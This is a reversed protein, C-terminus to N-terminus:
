RAAALDQAAYACHPALPCGSCNPSTKHCYTEGFLWLARDLQWPDAPYLERAMAVASEADTERGELARGLVRCVYVDAKVGSPGSVLGCDKLAGVIMRSIQEGAGLAWLRELVSGADCGEWILRADGQYHKLIREGIRWLRGHGQIKWHLNYEKKKANWEDRSVATIAAWVDEPNGLIEHVLRCGNEWAKDTNQMFDLLCCVLFQNAQRKSCREGNLHSMEGWDEGDDRHKLLLVALENQRNKLDNM